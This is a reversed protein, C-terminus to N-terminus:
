IQTSADGYEARGLQTDTRKRITRSAQIFRPSSPFSSAPAAPKKNVRPSRAPHVPGDYKQAAIEKTMCFFLAECGDAPGQM